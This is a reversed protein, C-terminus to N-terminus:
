EREEWRWLQKVSTVSRDSDLIGSTNADTKKVRRKWSLDILIGVIILWLITTM